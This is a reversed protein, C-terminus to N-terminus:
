ATDDPRGAGPRTPRRAPAQRRAVAPAHPGRRAAAPTPIPPRPHPAQSGEGPGGPAVAVTDFVYGVGRVTRIYRPRHPDPEIRRRLRQVHVDLSKTPAEHQGWVRDVLERRAVVRGAAGVLVVLLDLEKPAMTIVRDGVFVLRADLDVVVDRACLTARRDDGHGGVSSGSAVQAM